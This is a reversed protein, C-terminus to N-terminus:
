NLNWMEAIKVQFHKRVLHVPHYLFQDSSVYWFAFFTVVDAALAIKELLDVGAFM